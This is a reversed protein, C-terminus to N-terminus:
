LLSGAAVTGAVLEARQRSQRDSDREYLYYVDARKKGLARVALAALVASDLGGSLGIIVGQASNTNVQRQIYTEVAQVARTADIELLATLASM